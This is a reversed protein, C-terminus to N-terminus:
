GRHYWPPAEIAARLADRGGGTVSPGHAVLVHQFPEALLPAM